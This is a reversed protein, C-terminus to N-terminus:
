AMQFPLRARIAPSETIILYLAILWCLSSGPSVFGLGSTLTTVVLLFFGACQIYRRHGTWAFCAIFLIAGAVGFRGPHGAGDVGGSQGPIFMPIGGVGMTCETSMWGDWSTVNVCSMPAPWGPLLTGNTQWGAYFWPLGLSLVLLLLAARERVGLRRVLLGLDSM